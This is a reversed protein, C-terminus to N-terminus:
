QKPETRITVKTIVPQQERPITGNLDTPQATTCVEDVVEMGETVYGFCAYKGDLSAVSDQHVIFFQCSASNYENGRAMSIAGRTHSLPNDFGNAKFEGRITKGSDGYGSGLPDGGQMMFGEMIRHFTLGDYFGSEALEVFNAATRPAAAQNLKVTIKGYDAIEIDAYYTLNKDLKRPALAVALGIVGLIVAACAAAIVARLTKKRAEARAATELPAAITEVAQEMQKRLAEPAKANFTEISLAAEGLVKLNEKEAESLQDVTAVEVGMAKAIQSRNMQGVTRLVLAFRQLPPLCKAAQEAGSPIQAVSGIRFEKKAPLKFARADTGEVAKRCHSATYRVALPAFDGEEEMKGKAAAQLAATLGAGAASAASDADGSLLLAMGYIREAAGEWLRALAQRNGKMVKQMIVDM